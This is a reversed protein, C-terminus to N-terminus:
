ILRKVPQWRTVWIKVVQLSAVVMFIFLTPRDADLNSDPYIIDLFSNPYEKSYAIESKLYHGNEKPGDIAEYLPSYSNPSSEQYILSQIMGVVLQPHNTVTVYAVLGLGAVIGLLWM